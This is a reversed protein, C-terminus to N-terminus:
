RAERESPEIRELERLRTVAARHAQDGTADKRRRDLEALLESRGYLVLTDGAHVQAHGRPAGIYTAPPRHIGLVLVGEHFLDLESLTRDALWDDPEVELETVGYDRTLQLLRVWDRIELDTWRGLARAILRSLHRDVFESKAILLILALGGVLILLRLLVDATDRSNVFSLMTTAVITVLGANGFLMLALIIRRRVPHEVIHESEGTTFGVGSLASRAQFRAIDHSLGTATLAVTAIRTILLSIFIALLITAVGLM